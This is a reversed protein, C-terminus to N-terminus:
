FRPKVVMLFVITVIMLSLFMGGVKTKNIAALAETTTM